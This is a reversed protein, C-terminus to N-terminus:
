KANSRYYLFVGSDQYLLDLITDQTKWWVEETGNTYIRSYTTNGFASNINSMITNFADKGINGYQIRVELLKKNHFVYVLMANVDDAVQGGFIVPRETPNFTYTLYTYGDESTAVSPEGITDKNKSELKKIAKIDSTFDINRVNIEGDLVADRAGYENMISVATTESGNNNPNAPDNNADCSKFAFFAVIALIIALTVIGIYLKDKNQKSM